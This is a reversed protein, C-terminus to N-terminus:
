CRESVLGALGALVLEQEVVLPPAVWERLAESGGGHLVVPVEARVQEALRLRMAAIVGLAASIVGTAVASGTDRPFGTSYDSYGGVRATASFLSQRMLEPSPAIAGGLFRGDAELADVTLATGVGAVICPGDVLGRAGLLALYRDTGLLGVPQYEVQIGGACSMPEIRICEVGRRALIGEIWDAVAPAAVCSLYAERLPWVRWVRELQEIQDISCRGREAWERGQRLGWKLNTNGADLLLILAPCLFLAVGPTYAHPWRFQFATRPRFHRTRRAPYQVAVSESEVSIM